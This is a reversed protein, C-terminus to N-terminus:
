GHEVYAIWRGAALISMWLLLSVIGVLAAAV